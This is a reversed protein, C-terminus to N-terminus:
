DDHRKSYSKLCKNIYYLIDEEAPHKRLWDWTPRFTQMFEILTDGTLRTYKNVINENWRFNIYAEEETIDFLSRAARKNKERKSFRDINIGVGFGLENTRSVTTIRAEGVTALFAKRRSISDVQYHNLGASVTADPLTAPLLHLELLIFGSSLISDTITLTDSLYGSAAVALINGKQVGLVFKGDSRSVVTQGSLVNRISASRIPTKQVSDKVIGQLFIKQGAVGSWNLFM